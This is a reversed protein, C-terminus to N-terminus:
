DANSKLGLDLEIRNALTPLTTLELGKSALRLNTTYVPKEKEMYLKLIQRDKGTYRKIPKNTPKSGDFELSVGYEHFLTENQYLETQEFDVYDELVGEHNFLQIPSGVFAIDSAILYELSYVQGSYGLISNKEPLIGEMEQISVEGTIWQSVSAVGTQECYHALVFYGIPYELSGTGGVKQYYTYDDGYLIDKRNFMHEELMTQIQEGCHQLLYSYLNDLLTNQERYETLWDNLIKGDTGNLPCRGALILELNDITDDITFNAVFDCGCGLVSMALALLDANLSVSQYNAGLGTICSIIAKDIKYAKNTQLLGDEGVSLKLALKKRGGKRITGEDYMKDLNDSWEKYQIAQELLTLFEIVDTQDPENRLYYTKALRIAKSSLDTMGLEDDLYRIGLDAINGYIEEKNLYTPDSIYNLDYMEILYRHYMSLYYRKIDMIDTVKINYTKSQGKIFEETTM